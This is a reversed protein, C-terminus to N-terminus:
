KKVILESSKAIGQFVQVAPMKGAINYRLRRAQLTTGCADRRCHQVAPM